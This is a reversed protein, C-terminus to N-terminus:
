LNRTWSLKLERQTLDGRFNGERKSTTFFDNEQYIFAFALFSTRMLYKAGIKGLSSTGQQITSKEGGNKVDYDSTHLLGSGIFFYWRENSMHQLDLSIGLSYYGSNTYTEDNELNEGQYWSYYTYEGSILAEYRDYVAGTSLKLKGVTSGSWANGKGNEGRAEKHFLGPIIGLSIDSFRDGDSKKHRFRNTWTLEPERLGSFIYNKDSASGHRLSNEEIYNFPLEIKAWSWATLKMGYAVRASIIKDEESYNDNSLEDVGIDTDEHSLSTSFFSGSAPFSNLYQLGEAAFINAFFPSFILALFLFM